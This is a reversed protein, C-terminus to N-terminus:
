EVVDAAGGLRAPHLNAELLGDRVVRGVGGREVQLAFLDVHDDRQAPVPRQQAGGSGDEPVPERQEAHVRAVEAEEGRRALVLDLGREVAEGGAIVEEILAERELRAHQVRVAVLHVLVVREVVEDHM